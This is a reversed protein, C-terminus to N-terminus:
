GRGAGVHQPSTEALKGSIWGRVVRQIEGERFLGRYDQRRLKRETQVTGKLILIPATEFPTGYTTNALFGNPALGVYGDSLQACSAAQPMDLTYCALDGYDSGTGADTWLKSSTGVDPALDARVCLYDEIHPASYDATNNFASGLAVYGDPPIMTWCAGNGHRYGTGEDTWIKTFGTPYAFPPNADNGSPIRGCLVRAENNPNDTSAHCYSGFCAFGAPAVPKWFSGATNAYWRIADTSWQNIFTTTFCFTLGDIVFPAYRTAM